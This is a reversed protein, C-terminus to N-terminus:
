AHDRGWFRAAAAYTRRETPFRGVFSGSAGRANAALMRRRARGTVLAPTRQPTFAIPWFFFFRLMTDASSRRSFCFEVPFFEVLVRLSAGALRAWFAAAPLRM